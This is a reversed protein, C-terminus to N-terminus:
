GRILAGVTEMVSLVDFQKAFAYLTSETMLQQTMEPSIINLITPLVALVLVVVVSSRLMGLVGGILWDFGRFVPFCIVHDLLSVVLSILMYIVVFAAIFAVVNFVAVWLTQNLYDSLTSINLNAFAQNRVNASFSEAIFQFKDGVANVAASIAEEGGAIVDKVNTMAQTYNEFFGDPELYQNLVAMLTTNSLAMHALDAYVMKAGYWAGAFGLTSMGSTISGKYMGSLLGYAMIAIIVYDIINLEKGEM